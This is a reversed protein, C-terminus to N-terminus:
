ENTFDLGHAPNSWIKPNAHTYIFTLLLQGFSQLEWHLPKPIESTTGGKIKFFKLIEGPIEITREKM